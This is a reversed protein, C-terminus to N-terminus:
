HNRARATTFGTREGMANGMENPLMTHIRSFQQGNGEGIFCSSLHLLPKLQQEGLLQSLTLKTLGPAGQRRNFL